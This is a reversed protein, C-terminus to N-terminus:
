RLVSYQDSCVDFPTWVCSVGISMYRLSLVFDYEYVSVFVCMYTTVTLSPFSNRFNSICIILSNLILKMRKYGFLKRDVFRIVLDWLTTM